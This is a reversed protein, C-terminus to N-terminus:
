SELVTVHRGLLDSRKLGVIPASGVALRGPRPAETYFLHNGKAGLWTGAHEGHTPARRPPGPLPQQVPHDAIRHTAAEVAYRGSLRQRLEDARREVLDWQVPRALLPLVERHSRHEPLGYLLAVARETMRATPRDLGAQITFYADAGQERLRRQVRWAQTLGVKPLTGYFAAYVVHEVGKFSAVCTCSAPDAQCRPEFVCEPSEFGSCALCQAEQTVIRQEPCPVHAGAMAKGVCTRMGEVKWRFAGALPVELLAGDSVAVLCLERQGVVHLRM